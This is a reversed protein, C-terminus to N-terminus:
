DKKNCLLEASFMSNIEEHVYKRHKSLYGLVAACIPISKNEYAEGLFLFHCKAAYTGNALYLNPWDINKWLVASYYM